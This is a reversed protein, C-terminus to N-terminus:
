LSRVYAKGAKSTSETDNQASHREHQPPGLHISRRLFAGKGHGARGLRRCQALNARGLDVQAAGHGYVVGRAKGHAVDVQKVTVMM